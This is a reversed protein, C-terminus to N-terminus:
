IGLLRRAQEYEAPSIEGRALRDKLILRPEESPEGRRQLAGIVLGILTVMLAVGGIVWLWGGFGVGADFGTMM